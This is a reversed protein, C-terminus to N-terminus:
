AEKLHVNFNLPQIDQRNDFRCANFVPSMNLSMLSLHYIAKSYLLLILSGTSTVDSPMNRRQLQYSERVVATNLM